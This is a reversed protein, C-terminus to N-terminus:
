PILVLTEDVFFPRRKSLVPQSPIGAVPRLCILGAQMPENVLESLSSLM